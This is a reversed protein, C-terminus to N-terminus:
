HAPLSALAFGVLAAMKGAFDIQAENIHLSPTQWGFLLVGTVEDRVITPAVLLSRFHHEGIVSPLADGDSTAHGIAVPARASLALAAHPFERDVYHRGVASKDLGAACRLLWGKADRALLSSSDAGMGTAAHALATTFSPESQLASRLTEAMKNIDILTMIAGDVRNDRTQYPRLRLSYWHGDDDAVQREFPTVTEIVQQLATELDDMRLRIKFDTIPRGVDSGVMSILREAAPTARRLRLDRDVMIIPLRVGGLLSSLDENSHTLEDNRSRM